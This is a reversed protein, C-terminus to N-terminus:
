FHILVRKGLTSLIFEPLTIWCTTFGKMLFLFLSFLFGLCHHWCSSSKLFIWQHQKNMLNGVNTTKCFFQLKDPLNWFFQPWLLIPLRSRSKYCKVRGELRNMRAYHDESSKGAHKGWSALLRSKWLFGGPVQRM